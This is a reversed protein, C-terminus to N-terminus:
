DGVQLMVWVPYHDSASAKAESGRAVIKFGRTFIHDAAIPTPGFKAITSGAGKSARQLGVEAFQRVMRKIGRRTATNFDGGVITRQKGHAAVDDKVSEVQAIRYRPPAAYTETHVSYAMVEIGNVYVSARVAIRLQKNVWSRHPLLLKQPRQIPWRSLIANGFNKGHRHISAPYYVYNLRLERAIAATGAEDMEQLLIIDTNQMTKIQLFERVAQEIGEAFNINYSVVRLFRRTEPEAPAHQGEFLPGDPQEYNETTPRQITPMM